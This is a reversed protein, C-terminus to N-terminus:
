VYRQNDMGLEMEIGAMSFKEHDLIATYKKKQGLSGLKERGAGQEWICLRAKGRM